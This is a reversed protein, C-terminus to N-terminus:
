GDYEGQDSSSLSEISAHHVEVEECVSTLQASLQEVHINADSNTANVDFITDFNEGIREENRAIKEMMHKMKVKIDAIEEIKVKMDVMDALIVSIKQRLDKNLEAGLARLIGGNSDCEKSSHDAGISLDMTEAESFINYDQDLVSIEEEQAFCCSFLLVFLMIKCMKDKYDITLQLHTFNCQIKTSLHNTMSANHM